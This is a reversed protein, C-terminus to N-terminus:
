ASQREKDGHLKIAGAPALGNPMITRVETLMRVASLYRKQASELRKLRFAAQELSDRVPVASVSEMYKVEMYCAIVQDVLMRELRTPHEGALEAKTEEITRKMSEVALPHEAALVAIWAREAMVSLDGVHHWIEPHEDLIERLRPVAGADGAQAQKVLANLTVVIHPPDAKSSQIAAM